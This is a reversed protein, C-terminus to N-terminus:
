RTSLAGIPVLPDNKMKRMFKEGMTEEDEISTPLFPDDDRNYTSM